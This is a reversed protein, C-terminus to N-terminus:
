YGEGRSGRCAVGNEGGALAEGPHSRVARGGRGEGDLVAGVLERSRDDGITPIGELPDVGIPGARLYVGIPRRHGEVNPTGVPHGDAAEAYAPGPAAIPALWCTPTGDLLVTPVEVDKVHPEVMVLVLTDTVRAGSKEQLVGLDVM